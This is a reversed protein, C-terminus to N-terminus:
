YMSRGTWENYAQQRKQELVMEFASMLVDKYPSDSRMISLYYPGYVHELMDEFLEQEFEKRERQEPEIMNAAISISLSAFDASMKKAVWLRQRSVDKNPEVLDKLSISEETDVICISLDDTPRDEEGFAVNKFELDGHFLMNGHLTTLTEIAPRLRNWREAQPMTKWETNDLTTIGRRERTIGYARPAEGEAVGIAVMGLMELTPLGEGRMYQFMGAEHTAHHFAGPAFPKVAVPITHSEGEGIALQGFFVQRRSNERGLRWFPKPTFQIEPVRPGGVEEIVTESLYVGSIRRYREVNENVLLKGEHNLAQDFAPLARIRGDHVAAIDEVFQTVQPLHETPPQSDVPPTGAAFEPQNNLGDKM